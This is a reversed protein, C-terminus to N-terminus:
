PTPSHGAAISIAFTGSPTAVPELGTVEGPFLTKIDCPKQKMEAIENEM